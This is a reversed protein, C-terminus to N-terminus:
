HGMLQKTVHQQGEHTQKKRYNKEKLQNRIMLATTQSAEYSTLERLNVLIQKTDTLSSETDQSFTRTCKLLIHLETAKSPIRYNDMLGDSESTDNLAQKEM